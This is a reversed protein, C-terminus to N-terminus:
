QYTFSRRNERKKGVNPDDLLNSTSEEDDSPTDIDKILM